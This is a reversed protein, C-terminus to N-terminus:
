GSQSLAPLDSRTFEFIHSGSFEGRWVQHHVFEKSGYCSIGVQIRDLTRNGDVSISLGQTEKDTFDLDVIGPSSSKTEDQYLDRTMATCRRPATPDGASATSLNVALQARFTNYSSHPDKVFSIPKVAVNWAIAPQAESRASVTVVPSTASTTLAPFRDPANGVANAFYDGLLHAYIQL